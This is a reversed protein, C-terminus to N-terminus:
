KGGLFGVIRSWAGEARGDLLDFADEDDRFENERGAIFFGKSVSGPDRAESGWLTFVPFVSESPAIGDRKGVVFLVPLDAFRAVFPFRERAPQTETPDAPPLAGLWFVARRDRFMRDCATGDTLTCLAIARGGRVAAVRRAFSNEYAEDFPAGLFAVRGVHVPSSPSTLPELALMAAPGGFGLALVDVRDVRAARAVAGVAHAIGIALTPADPPVDADCGVLWVPFGADEFSAVLGGDRLLLERRWVTPEVIVLPVRAPHMTARPPFAIAHMALSGGDTAVVDHLTRSDISAVDFAPRACGIALSAVGLAIASARMV